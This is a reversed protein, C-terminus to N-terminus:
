NWEVWFEPCKPQYMLRFPGNRNPEVPINPVLESPSGRKGNQDNKNISGFFTGKRKCFQQGMCREKADQKCSRYGFARHSPDPRQLREM